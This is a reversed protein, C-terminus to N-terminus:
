WGWVIEAYVAREVETPSTIDGVFQLRRSELLDHGHVAFRMRSGLKRAIRLNLSTYGPVTLDPELSFGKTESVGYAWLDLKWNVGLDMSSRLSYQHEPSLGERSAINVANLGSRDPGSDLEIHTYSAQLRWWDRIRWDLTTEFGVATAELGNGFRPELPTEGAETSSLRDYDNFFAAVDISLSDTPQARYGAEYAVMIEAQQGPNGNLTVQLPPAPPPALPVSATVIRSNTEIEAPTRVAKSVAAWFTHRSGPHWLLRVNPQLEAGTRDNHEIKAGLTMRLRDPLLDFEDQVFASSIHRTIRRPTIAIVTSNEFRERINRYGLGAVLRHREGLGFQHKIEFDVTHFTEDLLFEERVVHDVYVQLATNSGDAWDRSVLGVINWGKAEFQDLRDVSYPPQPDALDVLLQSASLRYADGQLRWGYTADAHGDARFGATTSNWDDHANGGTRTDTFAQTDQHKIYARASGVDAVRTGIRLEAQSRENSGVSLGVLTNETDAAHRTLINIVGNVANAGWLTAGPGRVVEIREIDPLVLDQQEWFVGSFSPVYVSRGDVLVLLKNSWTSNFGRASIAWTHANIRAVQIGPALRLAEPISTVGSREIDERTIVHIAAAADRLKQPRKAVSTVEMSLLEGLSLDLVDDVSSQAEGAAALPACGLLCVLVLSWATRESFISRASPPEVYKSQIYSSQISM